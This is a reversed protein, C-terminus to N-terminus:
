KPSQQDGKPAPNGTEAYSKLRMIQQTLVENVPTAIGNLGQPSYGTVTYVFELKTGVADPVATFSMTGAVAMAQLPGLGGTMRLMKGPDIVVVEMHRVGGQNPLKECFCGGPREEISLNHANRSWTHDSSWWDGVKIIRRYVEAPAANIKVTIKITFGNAASDAVEAMAMAPTLV